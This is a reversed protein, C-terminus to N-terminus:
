GHCSDIAPRTPSPPPSIASWRPYTIDAACCTMVHRGVLLAAKGLKPDRMVIGKVRVTKGDWAQLEETLDRYWVAYDEDGIEM